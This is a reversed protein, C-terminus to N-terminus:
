QKDGTDLNVLYERRGAILGSAADISESIKQLKQILEKQELSKSNLVEILIETLNGATSLPGVLDHLFNRESTM